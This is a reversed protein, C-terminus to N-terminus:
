SQAAGIAERLAAISEVTARQVADRWDRCDSWKENEYAFIIGRSSNIVAGNGASDFGGVVDQATGGQAGFGPILIPANKMRQRLKVLQEPYTAGVVAGVAGYGQGSCSTEALKQVEDAVTEFLTNNEVPVDQFKGSGPNSTKVLVFVGRGHELAVNVFPELTDVGMFPNVTLADCCIGDINPNLYANAYAEATSGIDGRKADGIVIIKRDTAYRVVNKLANMGAPGLQEFFAFQPKVVAVLDAVVDIIEVCFKEYAAAAQESNQAEVGQTLEPPLREFRPDLGVMLPTQKLQIAATLRQGFPIM